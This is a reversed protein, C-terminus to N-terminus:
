DHRYFGDIRRAWQPSDLREICAGQQVGNRSPPPVHLFMTENVMVACHWARGAVRLILLDLARPQAVPTWGKQLGEAVAAAVSAQASASEYTDSYDPLTQQAVEALVVRVLGWCDVGDRDRGKDAYPLGIYAGAWAPITV